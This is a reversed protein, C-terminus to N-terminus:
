RGSCMSRAAARSESAHGVILGVFVVYDHDAGAARTQAGGDLRRRQTRLGCQHALREEALRVGDHRFATHGGCEGVDVLGVIPLCVEAVGHQASLVHAVPAHLLQVRLLRRLACELELAPTGHEIARRLALDVLAREATVGVLAERVHAVAGTEFHNARQLVLTDVL